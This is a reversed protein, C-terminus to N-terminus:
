KTTPCTCGTCMLIIKHVYSHLQNNCLLMDHIADAGEDPIECRSLDLSRLSLHYQLADALATAGDGRIRNRENSLIQDSYGSLSLEVLNHNLPLAPSLLNTVTHDDITMKNLIVTWLSSSKEIILGVQRMMDSHITPSATRVLNDSIDLTRLTSNNQAAIALSMLTMAHVSTNAM